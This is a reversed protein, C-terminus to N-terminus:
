HIILDKKKLKVYGIECFCFETAPNREQEFIPPSNIRSYHYAEFDALWKNNIEEFHFDM